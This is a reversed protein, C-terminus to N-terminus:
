ANELFVKSKGEMVLRADQRPKSRAAATIEQLFGFVSEPPRGEAALVTEAIGGDGGDLVRM